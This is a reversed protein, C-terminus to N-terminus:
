RRGANIENNLSEIQQKVEVYLTVIEKPVGYAIGDKGFDVSCTDGNDSDLIGIVCGLESDTHVAVFDGKKM